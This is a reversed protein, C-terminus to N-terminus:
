WDMLAATASGTFDNRYSYYKTPYEQAASKEKQWCTRGEPTDRM